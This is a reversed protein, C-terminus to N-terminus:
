WKYKRKSKKIGASYRRHAFGIGSTSQHYKQCKRCWYLAMNLWMGSMVGLGFIAGGESGYTIISVTGFFMLGFLAGANLIKDKWNMM